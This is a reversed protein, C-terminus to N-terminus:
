IAALLLSEGLLQRVLRGRSAGIAARVALERRRSAGRALLMNAVNGCAIALVLGVAALLVASAAKVYPDLMPHFRVGAGPLVAARTKENTAPYDQRMHAFITDIKAG